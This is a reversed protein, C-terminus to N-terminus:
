VHRLWSLIAVFALLVLLLTTLGAYRFDQRRRFDERLAVLEMVSVSILGLIGAAAIRDAWPTVGEAMGVGVGTLLALTSLRALLAALRVM